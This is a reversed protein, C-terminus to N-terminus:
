SLSSTLYVIYIGIVAIVITNSLKFFDNTGNYKVFKVIYCFYHTYM